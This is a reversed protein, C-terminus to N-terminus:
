IGTSRAQKVQMIGIVASILLKPENSVILAALSHERRDSAVSRLHGTNLKLKGILTAPKPSVGEAVCKCLRRIEVCARGSTVMRLRRPM